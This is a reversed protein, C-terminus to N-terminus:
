SISLSNRNLDYTVRSNFCINQKIGQEQAMRQDIDENVSSGTSEESGIVVEAVDIGMSEDLKMQVLM